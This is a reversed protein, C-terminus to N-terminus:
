PRVDPIKVSFDLSNTKFYELIKDTKSKPVLIDTVRNLAVRTWFDLHEQLQLDELAKVAAENEVKISYVQASFNLFLHRYIKELM